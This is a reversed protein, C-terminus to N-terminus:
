FNDASNSNSNCSLYPLALYPRLRASSSMLYLYRVVDVAGPQVKPDKGM